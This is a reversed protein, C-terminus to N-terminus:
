LKKHFFHLFENEERTWFTCFFNAVWISPCVFFSFLLLLVNWRISKRLSSSSSSIIYVRRERFARKLFIMTWKQAHEHIARASNNNNNNHAFLTHEQGRERERKRLPEFGFSLSILNRVCMSIKRWSSTLSSEKRRSHFLPYVCRSMGRRTTRGNPVVKFALYM